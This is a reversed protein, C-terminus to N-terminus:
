AVCIEVHFNKRPISSYLLEGTCNQSGPRRVASKAPKCVFFDKIGENSMGITRVKDIWSVCGLFLTMSPSCVRLHFYYTVELRDTDGQKGLVTNDCYAWRCTWDLDFDFIQPRRFTHVIMTLRLAHRM